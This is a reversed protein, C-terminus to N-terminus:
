PGRAVESHGTEALRWAGGCEACVVCGDAEPSQGQLDSGCGPCCGRARLAREVARRSYAFNGYITGLGLAVFLLPGLYLGPAIGRPLGGSVTKAIFIFLGAMGLGLTILVAAIPRRVWRGSRSIERRADHLRAGHDANATRMARRLRPHALPVPRGRDDVGSTRDAARFAMLFPAAIMSADGGVLAAAHHVRNARWATGCEPCTVCGDHEPALGHLNYMCSPCLGEDLVLDAIQRSRGRIRRRVQLTAIVAIPFGLALGMAIPRAAGWGSPVPVRTFLWAFPAAVLFTLVGQLYPRRVRLAFQLREALRRARPDSGIPLPGSAPRLIVVPRGRDDTSPGAHSRSPQQSPMGITGAWRYGSRAAAHDFTSGAPRL